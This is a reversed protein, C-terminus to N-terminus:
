SMKSLDLDWIADYSNIEGEGFMDSFLDFKNSKIIESTIESLGAMSTEGKAFQVFYKGITEAELLSVACTSKYGMCSCLQTLYEQGIQRIRDSDDLYYETKATDKLRQLWEGDEKCQQQPNKLSEDVDNNTSSIYTSSEEDGQSTLFSLYDENRKPRCEGCRYEQIERLKTNNGM